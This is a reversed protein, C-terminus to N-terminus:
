TWSSVFRAETPTVFLIKSTVNRGGALEVAARWGELTARHDIEELLHLPYRITGEVSSKSPVISLDIGRHFRSWRATTGKLITQPSLAMMLARYLPGEFLRRQADRCFRLFAEDSQFCTERVGRLVCRFHVSPMWATVPAPHTVADHLESPLSACLREPTTKVSDLLSRLLSAKTVVDPYSALGQPLRELYLDVASPKTM